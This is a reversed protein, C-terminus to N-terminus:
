MRDPAEFGLLGICTELVKKTLVLVQIWSTKQKENEEGLIKTEHYFSNFANALEYIYSCIKHPAKEQFAPQIVSNLRSLVMMLAKESDNAAGLIVGEEPNGGAEKYRNLISKIRVITYLIYPGTNGEFSTFRDVDFVYDKSAQNSLDGYKIASLGVMEATKHADDGKVSRNEVIKKYMEENIESILRELRMVGGERTKFPKGDKGNMTGFGVFSLETSDPVLGTKKACRFVQVFHLEQRKDVVYIIEDPHYDEERQVITALDTTTYLSAGDSKLIMCPPIEKTDKEEKVDVVLAGQDQYAYGKGKLYEVLGPIYSDADSEGKWLDFDVSLKEYNRKLDAVSVKMIQEWLARYGRRGQQLELTAELAENKYDEDEKSRKSATPYIEELESVTFPAEQPYEGQYDKDFYVLDPQRKSLETIILGMQLGWDGLHVDGIVKHGLFRGMRKISEGIIASRLHGVHLPKAVNPGGYDIVITKPSGTKEVSLNEDETMQNLYSALFDRDLKLNIFGPNVAQASEFISKDQLKEVVDNAIMIPAKRYAKAAAMAGNCQYECLDPRNSVTVKGFKEEYGSAKFAEMMVEEICGIFTKM